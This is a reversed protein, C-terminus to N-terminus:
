LLAGSYIVELNFIVEIIYLPCNGLDKISNLIVDINGLDWHTM